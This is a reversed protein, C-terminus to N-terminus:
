PERCLDFLDADPIDEPVDPKGSMARYQFGGQERLILISQRGTMREWECPADSLRILAQRVNDNPHNM